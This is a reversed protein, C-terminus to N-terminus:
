WQQRHAHSSEAVEIKTGPYQVNVHQQNLMVIDLIETNEFTALDQAERLTWYLGGVVFRNLQEWLGPSVVRNFIVM